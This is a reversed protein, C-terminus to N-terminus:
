ENLSIIMAMGSLSDIHGRTTGFEIGYQDMRVVEKPCASDSLYYEDTYNGLGGTV